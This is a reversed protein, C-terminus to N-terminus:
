QEERMRERIRLFAEIVIMSLALFFATIPNLTRTMQLWAAIVAFLGVWMSQRLMVGGSAAYRNGSFRRNLTWVFPMATGTAAIYFLIFFLWRPFALPPTTTILQYLAVWSVGAMISAAVLAGTQGAVRVRRISLPAPTPM